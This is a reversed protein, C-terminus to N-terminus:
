WVYSVDDWCEWSPAPISMPIAGLRLEQESERQVWQALYNKAGRKWKRLEPKAVWIMQALCLLPQNNFGVELRDSLLISSHPKEEMEALFVSSEGHEAAKWNPFKSSLSIFAFPRFSGVHKGLGWCISHLKSFIIKFETDLHLHITRERKSMERTTSGCHEPVKDTAASYLGNWQRHQVQPKSAYSCHFM